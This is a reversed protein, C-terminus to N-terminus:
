IRRAYHSWVASTGEFSRLNIDRRKISGPHVYKNRVYITGELRKANKWGQCRTRNGETEEFWGRM